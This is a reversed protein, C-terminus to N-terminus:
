LELEFFFFIFFALSVKNSICFSAEYGDTFLRRIGIEYLLCHKNWLVQVITLVMKLEFCIFFGSAEM